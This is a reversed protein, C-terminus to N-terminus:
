EVGETRRRWGGIQRGIDALEETAHLLQRDDLLKKEAAMRLEVRLLTAHEDAEVLREHTDFRALALSVAHLLERSERLVSRSVEAFGGAPDRAVPGDFRDLLWGHLDFARIFIPAEKM